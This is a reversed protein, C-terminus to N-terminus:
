VQRRKVAGSIGKGENHAYNLIKSVFEALKPVTASVPRDNIENLRTISRFAANIVHFPTRQQFQL